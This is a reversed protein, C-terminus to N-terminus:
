EPKGILSPNPEFAQSLDIHGDLTDVDEDQVLIRVKKVSAINATLSDVLSYVALLESEIGPDLGNRVDSAFDVVATGDSTLFVARITASAPLARAYGKHSGEILGLLIERARDVDEKPWTIPRSEGVLTGSNYDPFYLVVAQNPGGQPQLAVQSLRTRAEQESGFSEFFTHHALVRLYLVAAIVVGLTVALVIKTTRSMGSNPLTSM